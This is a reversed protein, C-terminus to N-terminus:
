TRAAGSEHVKITKVNGPDALPGHGTEDMGSKWAIQVGSTPGSVRCSSSEKQKTQTQKGPCTENLDPIDRNKFIFPGFSPVVVVVIIPCSLGFILRKHSLM